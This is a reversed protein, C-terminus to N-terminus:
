CVFDLPLLYSLTSHPGVNLRLPEQLFNQSNIHNYLLSKLSFNGSKSWKQDVIYFNQHPGCSRHVLYLCLPYLILLLLVESYEKVM